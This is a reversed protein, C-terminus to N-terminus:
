KKKTPAAPKGAKPKAGPKKKGDGAAATDAPPDAPPPDKKAEAPPDPTVPPPPPTTDATAPIDPKADTTSPPAVEASPELPPKEPAGGCAVLGLVLSTAAFLGLRIMHTTM